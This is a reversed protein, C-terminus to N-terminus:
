FWPISADLTDSSRPDVVTFYRLGSTYVAVPSQPLEVPWGSAIAVLAHGPLM